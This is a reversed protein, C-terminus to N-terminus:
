VWTLQGADAVVHEIERTSEQVWQV